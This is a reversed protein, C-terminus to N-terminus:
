EKESCVIKRIKEIDNQSLIYWECKGNRARKSAFMDHLSQELNRCDKVKEIIIYEPEEPLKTYEGLRSKPHKTSGIKYYGCNKMVYLVGSKNEAVKPRVIQQEERLMELKEIFIKEAEEIYEKLISDYNEIVENIKNRANILAEQTLYNSNGNTFCGHDYITLCNYDDLEDSFYIFECRLEMFERDSLDPLYKRATDINVVSEYHKILEKEDM